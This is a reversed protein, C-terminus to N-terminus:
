KGFLAYSLSLFWSSSFKDRMFETTAAPYLQNADYADSLTRVPGGIWGATLAIKNTKGYVAGLGLMVRPKPKSELSLGPGFAAFFGLDQYVYGGVHLLAAIGMEIKSSSEKVLSYNTTDYKIPTTSVQRINARFSYDAPKLGGAYVGTSFFWCANPHKKLEIVTEYSQANKAPDMGEIKINLKTIDATLAQELSTYTENPAAKKKMEACVKPIITTNFSTDFGTTFKVFDKKYNQIMSDAKILSVEKLIIAYDPLVATYYDRYTNELQKIQNSKETLIDTAKKEFGNCTNERDMKYDLVLKDAPAIVKNQFNFYHDFLDNRMKQMTNMLVTAKIQQKQKDSLEKLVNLIVADNNYFAKLDILADVNEIFFDLQEEDKLIYGKTAAEKKLPDGSNIGQFHKIAKQITPAQKTKKKAIEPEGEGSELDVEHSYQKNITTVTKSAGTVAYNTLNALLKTYGDGFSLASFLAPMENIKITSDTKGLSVKYIGAPLNKIQLQVSQANKIKKPVTTTKTSFDIVIPSSQAFGKLSLATILLLLTITKM